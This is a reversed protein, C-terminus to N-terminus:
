DISKSIGLRMLLKSVENNVPKVKALNSLGKGIKTAYKPSESLKKVALIGATAPLNIAAGTLGGILDVASVPPKKSQAYVLDRASNLASITEQYAKNLPRFEPIKTSFKDLEDGIGSRVEKLIQKALAPQERAFDGASLISNLKRYEEVAQGVTMNKSEFTSASDLIEGVQKQTLSTDYSDALDLLRESIGKTNITSKIKGASKDFNRIQQGISSQEAELASVVEDPSKGLLGKKDLIDPISKKVWKATNKDTKYFRQALAKKSNELGKSIASGAGELATGAVGTILGTTAAEKAIGKLDKNEQLGQAAGFGTGIATNSILRGAGKTALNGTKGALFKQAANEVLPTAKTALKGATAGTNLKGMSVISLLTQLAGGAVEKNTAFGKDGAIIKEYDPMGPTTKIINKWKDIQKQDGSKIAKKLGEINMQQTKQSTQNAAEINRNTQPDLIAATQGVASGLKGTVFNSVGGLLGFDRNDTQPAQPTTQPQAKERYRLVAQKIFEQDKGEAIGKEVIQREVDRNVIPM